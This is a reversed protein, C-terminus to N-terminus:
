GTKRHHKLWSRVFHATCCARQGELRNKESQLRKQLSVNGVELATSVRETLRKERQDLEALAAKELAVRGMHARWVATFLEDVKAAYADAQKQRKEISSARAKRRVALKAQAAIHNQLEADLRAAESDLHMAALGFTGALQRNGAAEAKAANRRIGQAQRQFDDRKAALWAPYDAEAAAIDAAVWPPHDAETTV